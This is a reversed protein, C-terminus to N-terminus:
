APTVVLGRPTAWLGSVPESRVETRVTTGDDALWRVENGVAVVVEGEHVVVADVALPRWWRVTGDLVIRYLRGSRSSVALDDGVAALGTVVDGTAVDWVREGDPRYATVHGDWGGFIALGAHALAVSGGSGEVGRVSCRKVGDAGIVHWTWYGSIAVIEDRGDGDLDAAAIDNCAHIVEYSWLSVGDATWAHVHCSETGIIVAPEVASPDLRATGVANVVAPHGMHAPFEQQWRLSGDLDYLAVLGDFQGVVVGGFPGAGLVNVEAAATFEAIPAGDRHVVVTSGTASVVEGTPLVTTSCRPPRSASAPRSVSAASAVRGVDSALRDTPAPGPDTLWSEFSVRQGAELHVAVTDQLVSETEEAWPYGHWDTRYPLYPEALQRRRRPGGEAVTTIALREDGMTITWTDGALAAAGVTRWLLTVEYDGAEEAVVDDTVRFGQQPQSEGRVFEVTRTWRAGSYCYTSGARAIGDADSVEGLTAYPPRPGVVGDRAIVVTNHFNASIKDYEADELWIRNRWTLRLVANADRHGHGGNDVGDLLLYPEEEDFGDRFSIKDFGNDPQPDTAEHTQLYAADHPLVHVGGTILEAVPRPGAPVDYRHVLSGIGTISLEQTPASDEKRTLLAGYREDALLWVATRWFDRESFSGRFASADGYPVQGALNDMTVLSRDLLRACTGDSVYSPVPRLLVYRLTHALTLWGYAECDETSKGATLMPAFCEDAMEVWEAVQPLRHVRGLLLAGYLLGLAAFTYHNHRAPYPSDRHGHWQEESNGLFDVLHSAIRTRDEESFAPSDAITHWTSIVRSAQFDADFGWRGWQDPVWADTEVMMDQMMAVYREAFVPDGTLAFMDALHTLYPTFGRHKRTRYAQRAEEAFTAYGRHQPDLVPIRETWASALGVDHVDVLEGDVVHDLLRDVAAILDAEDSVGVVVVDGGDGWLDRHTRLFWGGAGPLSEDVATLGAHYMEAIEPNSSLNGLLIRTRESEGPELVALTGRGGAPTRSGNPWNAVVLEPVAGTRSTVGAVLREAASRGAPTDPHVVVAGALDVPGAVRRARM